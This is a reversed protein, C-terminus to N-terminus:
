LRFVRSPLSSKPLNRSIKNISQFTSMRGREWEGDRGKRRRRDKRVSRRNGRREFTGVSARLRAFPEFVSEKWRRGKYRMVRM